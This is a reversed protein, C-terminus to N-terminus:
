INQSTDKLQAPDRVTFAGWFVRSLKVAKLLTLNLPIKPIGAPVSLSSAVMGHWQACFRGAYDGGVADYVVDVGKPGAAEKISASASRM